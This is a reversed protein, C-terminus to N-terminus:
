ADSGFPLVDVGRVLWRGSQWVLVAAMTASGQAAEGLLQGTASRKVAPGVRVDLKVGASAASLLEHHVAVVSIAGPTTASGEAREAEVASTISKCYICLPHSMELWNSTDHSTITYSYLDTLFYTAAAIAGAEDASSMEPPPTPLAM